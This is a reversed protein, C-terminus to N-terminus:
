PAEPDGEYIHVYVGLSAAVMPPPGVPQLAKTPLLRRQGLHSRLKPQKNRERIRDSERHQGGKYGNTKARTHM